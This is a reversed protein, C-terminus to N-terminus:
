WICRCHRGLVSKTSDVFLKAPAHKAKWRNRARVRSDIGFGGNNRAKRRLRDSEELEETCGADSTAAPDLRHVGSSIADWPPHRTQQSPIARVCRMWRQEFIAVQSRFMMAQAAEMLNGAISWHGKQTTSSSTPPAPQRSNPPSQNANM